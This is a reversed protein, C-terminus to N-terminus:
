ERDGLQESASDPSPPTYQWESSVQHFRDRWFEEPNPVPPIGACGGPSAPGRYIVRLKIQSALGHMEARAARYDLFQQGLQIVKELAPISLGVGGTRRNGKKFMFQVGNELDGKRWALIVTRGTPLDEKYGDMRVLKRKGM